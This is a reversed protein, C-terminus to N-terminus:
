DAAGLTERFTFSMIKAATKKVSSTKGGVPVYTCSCISAAYKWEDHIYPHILIATHFKIFPVKLKNRHHQIGKACANNDQYCVFMQTNAMSSCELRMCSYLLSFPLLVFMVLSSSRCRVLFIFLAEKRPCQCFITLDLLLHHTSAGCCSKQLQFSVILPPFTM